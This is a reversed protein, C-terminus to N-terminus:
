FHAPSILRKMDQVAQFLGTFVSRSIISHGISLEDINPIRAIPLVNLYTLGHGARVKMGSKFALDAAKTLRSIEQRILEHSSAEAYSGTHLEISHAGAEVAAAIQDPEPDIFFSVEPVVASLTKVAGTYLSLQSLLNLGGQTTVENQNEPVLTVTHPQYHLALDIMPQVAAMELNLPLRIIRLLLELDREQIHRRDQRVHVVLGDAGALEVTLAAQVPEPEVTRRAERITAIHDINVALRPMQGETKRTEINQDRRNQIM